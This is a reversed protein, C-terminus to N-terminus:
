INGSPCDSNRGLDFDRRNNEVHEARGGLFLLGFNYVRDTRRFHHHGGHLCPPIESGLQFHHSGDIPPHPRPSLSLSLYVIFVRFFTKSFYSFLSDLDIRGNFLGPLYLLYSGSGKENKKRGAPIRICRYGGSPCLWRRNFSRKFSQYRWLQDIREGFGLSRDRINFEVWTTGKFLALRRDRCFHSPYHSLGCFQGCLHIESLSDLLCLPPKPSTRLSSAM